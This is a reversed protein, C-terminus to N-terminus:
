WPLFGTFEANLKVLNCHSWGGYFMYWQGNNDEFVFQDIPQANNHFGDILPKGLYDKYPGEPQDAVAIGIGGSRNLGNGESWMPGGPRQVDNASFFLYYKKNKEVVAPAWMAQKAWKIISTDLIHEHKKWTKLNKSSFADFFVQQEYKASFTPFIWYTKNFVAGEPDAYWGEIVPNKGLDLPINRNSSCANAILIILLLLNRKKM